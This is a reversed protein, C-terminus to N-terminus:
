PTLLEATLALFMTQQLPADVAASGRLRVRSTGEVVRLDSRFSHEEVRGSQPDFQQHVELLQAPRSWDDFLRQSDVLALDNLASM